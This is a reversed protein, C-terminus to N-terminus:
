GVAVRRAGQADDRPIRVELVGNELRADLEHSRLGARLPVVRRFTGYRAEALRMAHGNSLSPARQGCVVLVGGQVRVDIADRPTGVVDFAFVVEEASEYVTMAPTWPPAPPRVDNGQLAGVLRDVQAQVHAVPDEEAPIPAYPADTRPMEHGTLKRYLQSVQDIAQDIEM